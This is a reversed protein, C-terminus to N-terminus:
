PAAETFSIAHSRLFQKLVNAAIALNLDNRSNETTPASESLIAYAVGLVRNRSDLVPGGSSGHGTPASHHLRALPGASTGSVTITEEGTDPDVRCVTLLDDHVRAGHILSLIEGSTAEFDEEPFGLARVPQGVGITGSSAIALPKFRTQAGPPLDVRLVALDLSEDIIVPSALYSRTADGEGVTVWVDRLVSQLRSLSDWQSHTFNRARRRTGTLVVHASTVLFGDGNVFFGTGRSLVRLRHAIEAEYPTWPQRAALEASLDPAFSIPDATVEIRVVASRVCPDIQPPPPPQASAAPVAIILALYLLPLARRVAPRPSSARRSPPPTPADARPSLARTTLREKTPIM